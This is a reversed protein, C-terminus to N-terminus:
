QYPMCAWWFCMHLVTLRFGEEKRNFYLTTLLEERKWTAMVEPPTTRPPPDKNPWTLYPVPIHCEEPWHCTLSLRSRQLSPSITWSFLKRQEWCFSHLFLSHRRKQIRHSRSHTGQAEAAAKKGGHPFSTQPRLTVRLPCLARVASNRCNGYKKSEQKM